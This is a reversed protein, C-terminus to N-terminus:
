SAAGPKVARVAIVLQYHPDNYDLEAPSLEEVALGHLFSIAALVNGHTEFTLAQEPFTEGFLRRASQLTFGWFWTGGWEGQDIQSIGPFTTLLVGGPRLIRHLTAIAARVDYILHLTQTLIVCDFADSPIHDASTLDGVFTARPNGEAVHLVDSRTVREGGFRRTYTDDGVELVRGRVVGANRALFGEIYYRDVPLGRDYGFVTSIPTVRRLQGFDVRGVDPVARLRRRLAAGWGAVGRILVAM